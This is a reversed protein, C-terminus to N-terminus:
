CVVKKGDKMQYVYGGKSINKDDPNHVRCKLSELKKTNRSEYARTVANGYHGKNVTDTHVTYLFHLMVVFVFVKFIHM